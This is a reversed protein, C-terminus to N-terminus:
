GLNSELTQYIPITKGREEKLQKRRINPDNSAYFIKNEKMDVKRREKIHENKRKNKKQCLKAKYSQSSKFGGM